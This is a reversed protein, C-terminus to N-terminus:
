HANTPTPGHPSTVGAGTRGANCRFLDGVDYPTGTLVRLGRILKTLTAKSVSDTRDHYLASITGVRLGSATSLASQTLRHRGMIESLAGTIHLDQM